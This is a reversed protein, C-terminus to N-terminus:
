YGQTLRSDNQVMNAVDQLAQVVSEVTLPDPGYNNFIDECIKNKIEAFNQLYHRPILDYVCHEDLNLGVENAAKLAAKIRAQVSSWEGKLSEPCLNELSEGGTYLNAYEVEKHRLYTAYSWTQTCNDGIQESFTGKRYILSCKNKEDFTQFLM